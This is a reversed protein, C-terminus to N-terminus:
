TECILLLWGCAVFGRKKNGHDFACGKQLAFVGELKARDLVNKSHRDDKTTLDSLGNNGLLSQFFGVVEVDLLGEDRVLKKIVERL